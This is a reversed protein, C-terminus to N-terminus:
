AAAVCWCLATCVCMDGVRTRWWDYRDKDLLGNEVTRRMEESNSAEVSQASSYMPVAFDSAPFKPFATSNTDDTMYLIVTYM